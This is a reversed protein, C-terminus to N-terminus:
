LLTLTTVFRNQVLIHVDFAQLIDAALAAGCAVQLIQLM